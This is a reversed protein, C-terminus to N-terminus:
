EQDDRWHFTHLLRHVVPALVISAAAVFILGAYLAYLGVFLRASPQSPVEVLGLGGLLLASHLFATGLDHGELVVYGIMGIALSVGVVGFAIVFHILVRRIFAAWSIQPM